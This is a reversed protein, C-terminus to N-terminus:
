KLAFEVIEAFIQSFNVIFLSTYCMLCVGLRDAVLVLLVRIDVGHIQKTVESM